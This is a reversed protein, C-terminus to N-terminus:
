PRVGMLLVPSSGTGVLPGLFPNFFVIYNQLISINQVVLLNQLIFFVIHLIRVTQLVVSRNRKENNLFTEGLALVM